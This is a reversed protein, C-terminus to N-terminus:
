VTPDPEESSCGPPYPCGDIPKTEEDPETSRSAAKGIAYATIATVNIFGKGDANKRPKIEQRIIVGKADPNEKILKLLDDKKFYFEMKCHKSM